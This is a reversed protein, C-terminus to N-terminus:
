RKFKLKFREWLAKRIPKFIYLLDAMSLQFSVEKVGDRFTLVYPRSEQKNTSVLMSVRDFEFIEKEM